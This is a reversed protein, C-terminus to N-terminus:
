NCKTDVVVGKPDNLQGNGSGPSGITKLVSQANTSNSLSVGLLILGVITAVTIIISM